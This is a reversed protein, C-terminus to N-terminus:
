PAEHHYADKKGAIMKRKVNKLWINKWRKTLSSHLIEM